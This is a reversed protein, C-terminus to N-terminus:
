QASSFGHVGQERTVGRSIAAELDEPEDDDTNKPRHVENQLAEVETDAHQQRYQPSVIEVPTDQDVGDPRYPVAVFHPKEGGTAGREGGERVPVGSQEAAKVKGEEQNQGGEDESSHRELEPGLAGEGGPSCGPVLRDEPSADNRRQQPTHGEGVHQPANGDPRVLGVQTREEVEEVGIREKSPDGCQEQEGEM